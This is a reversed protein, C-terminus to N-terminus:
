FQAAVVRSAIASAQEREFPYWINFLWIVSCLPIFSICGLLIPFIFNKFVSHLYTESSANSFNPQVSICPLYRKIFLISLSPMFAQM